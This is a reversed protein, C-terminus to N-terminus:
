INRSVRQDLPAIRRSKPRVNANIENLLKAMWELAVSLQNAIHERNEQKELLSLLEIDNESIAAADNFVKLCHIFNTATTRSESKPVKRSRKQLGIGKGYYKNDSAKVKHGLLTALGEAECATPLSKKKNLFHWYADRGFHWQYRSLYKTYEDLSTKLEAATKDLRSATQRFQIIKAM